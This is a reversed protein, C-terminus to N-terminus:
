SAMETMTQLIVVYGDVALVDDTHFFGFTDTKGQGFQCSASSHAVSLANEIEAYDTLISCHSDHLTNDAAHWRIYIKYWPRAVEPKIGAGSPSSARRLLAALAEGFVAKENEAKAKAAAHAQDIRAAWSGISNAPVEAEQADHATAAPVGETPEGSLESLNQM